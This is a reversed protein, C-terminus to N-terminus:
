ICNLKEAIQTTKEDNCLDLIIQWLKDQMERDLDVKDQKMETFKKKKWTILKGSKKM